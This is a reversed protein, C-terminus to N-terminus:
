ERKGRRLLRMVGDFFNISPVKQMYGRYDNNFKEILHKEEEPLVYVFFWMLLPIRLVLTLWHQSILISGVILLISGLYEPHRVVAYIGSDVLLTTSLFSKGKPAGGRKQLEYLGMVFFAFGALGTLWGVYVLVGIGLYIHFFYNYCFIILGLMIQVRLLLRCVRFFLSPEWQKLTLRRVVARAWV